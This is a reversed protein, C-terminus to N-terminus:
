RKRRKPQLEAFLKKVLGTAVAAATDGAREAFELKRRQVWVASGAQGFEEIALRFAEADGASQAREIRDALGRLYAVITRSTVAPANM